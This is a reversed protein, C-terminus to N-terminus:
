SGVKTQLARLVPQGGKNIGYNAGALPRQGLDLIRSMRGGLCNPRGPPMGQDGTGHNSM